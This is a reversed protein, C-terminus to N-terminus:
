RLHGVKADSLFRNLASENFVTGEASIAPDFAWLHAPVDAVIPVDAGYQEIYYKSLPGADLAQAWFSHGLSTVKVWDGCMVNGAEFESVPLAVFALSDNYVMGAGNDCYLPQGVFPHHYVTLVGIATFAQIITM